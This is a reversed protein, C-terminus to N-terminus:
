GILIKNNRDDLSKVIYLKTEYIFSIVSLIDDVLKATPVAIRRIISGCERFNFNPRIMVSLAISTGLQYQNGLYM